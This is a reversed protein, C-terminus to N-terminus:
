HFSGAPAGKMNAPPQNFRQELRRIQRTFNDTNQQKLNADLAQNPMGEGSQAASPEQDRGEAPRRPAAAAPQGIYNTGRYFAYQADGKRSVATVLGRVGEAV